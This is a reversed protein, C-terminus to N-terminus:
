RRFLSLIENSAGTALGCLFCTFNTENNKENIGFIAKSSENIVSFVFFQATVKFLLRYKQPVIQHDENTGSLQLNILERANRVYSKGLFYGAALASANSGANRLIQYDNNNDTAESSLINLSPTSILLSTVIIKIFINKKM